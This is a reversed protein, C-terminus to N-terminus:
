FEISAALTHASALEEGLEPGGVDESVYTMLVIDKGNSLYWASVVEDDSSSTGNVFFVGGSQEIPHDCRL